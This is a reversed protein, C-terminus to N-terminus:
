PAMQAWTGDTGLAYAVGLDDLLLFGRECPQWTASVAREGETAWGVSQPVELVNCWVLGFGRQPKFLGEPAIGACSEAPMGEQWTDSYGTYTGDGRLVYVVRTDPRWLMLGRVFPQAAWTATQAADTPCGLWERGASAQWIAQLSSDPAVACAVTPAPAATVTRTATPVATPTVSPQATLTATPWPTSTFTPTPGPPELMPV